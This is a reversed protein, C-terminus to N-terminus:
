FSSCNAIAHILMSNKLGLREKGQKGRRGLKAHHKRKRRANFGCTAREDLSPLNTNAQRLMEFWSGFRTASQPKSTFQPNHLGCNAWQTCFLLIYIQLMFRHTPPPPFSRTLNHHLHTHHFSLMYQVVTGCLAQKHQSLGHNTTVNSCGMQKSCADLPM